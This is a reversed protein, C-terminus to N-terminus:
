LSSPEPPPVSLRASVQFPDDHDIVGVGSGAVPLPATFSSRPTEQGEELKQMATPSSPDALPGTLEVYAKAAM